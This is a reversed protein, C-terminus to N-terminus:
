AEGQGRATKRMAATTLNIARRLHSRRAPISADFQNRDAISGVAMTIPDITIIGDMTAILTTGEM